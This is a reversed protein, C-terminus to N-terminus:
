LKGLCKIDDLSNVDTNSLSVCELNEYKLVHKLDSMPFKNDSLEIRILGELKPLNDLSKLECNNLSLM